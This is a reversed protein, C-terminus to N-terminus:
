VKVRNIVKAKLNISLSNSFNHYLYCDHLFMGDEVQNPLFNEIEWCAIGLFSFFFHHM